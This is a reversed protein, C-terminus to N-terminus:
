DCFDCVRTAPLTVSCTPCLAPPAERVPVRRTSPRPTRPKRTQQTAVPRRASAPEAVEFGRKRLILVASDMGHFEESTALRGTAHRHAVGLVARADYSHGEHVIAYQPAPEFGYLALFDEGGRTDHEGIAQLIHQRTVSSFTAV